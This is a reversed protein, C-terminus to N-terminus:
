LIQYLEISHRALNNRNSYFLAVFKRIVQQGCLEGYLVFAQKYSVLRVQEEQIRKTETVSVSNFLLPRDSKSFKPKIAEIEPRPTM